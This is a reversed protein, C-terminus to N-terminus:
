LIQQIDSLLASGMGALNLLTGKEGGLTVSSVRAVAFPTAEVKQGGSSAKVEISYVGEAAAAGQDNLGDWSFNVMGAKQAGLDLTKVVAGSADKVMVSVSDASQALGFTGPATGGSLYIGNGAMVVDHGILSAAQLSQGALVASSLSTAADNLKGLETVTSLQAMQSTIEANDLPNLPDQNQMQTVLLKLFRDETEKVSSKAPATASAAAASTATSTGVQNVMTM